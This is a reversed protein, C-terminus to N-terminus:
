PKNELNIQMRLQTADNQFGLYALIKKVKSEKDVTLWTSQTHSQKLISVEDAWYHLEFTSENPRIYQYLLLHLSFKFDKCTVSWSHPAQNKEHTCDYWYSGDSALFDFKLEKASFEQSQFQAKAVTIFAFSFIFIFLLSIKQMPAGLVFLLM